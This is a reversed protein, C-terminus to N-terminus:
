KRKGIRDFEEARAKEMEDIFRAKFMQYIEETPWFGSSSDSGIHIEERGWRRFFREWEKEQNTKDM